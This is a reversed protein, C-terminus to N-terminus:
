DDINPHFMYKKRNVVCLEYLDFSQKGATRM